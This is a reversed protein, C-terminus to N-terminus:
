CLVSQEILSIENRRVLDAELVGRLLANRERLDPEIRNSEAYIMIADDGSTEAGYRVDGGGHSLDREGRGRGAKRNEGDTEWKWSALEAIKRM